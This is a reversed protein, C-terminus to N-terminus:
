TDSTMNRLYEFQYRVHLSSATSWFHHIDWCLGSGYILYANYPIFIPWLYGVNTPNHEMMSSPMTEEVNDISDNDGDMESGNASPIPSTDGITVTKPPLSNHRGGRTHEHHRLRSEPPLSTYCAAELNQRLIQCAVPAVRSKGLNPVLDGDMQGLDVITMVTPNIPTINFFTLPKPHTMTPILMAAFSQLVCCLLSQLTVQPHPLTVALWM